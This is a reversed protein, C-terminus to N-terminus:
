DAIRMLQNQLRTYVEASSIQGQYYNQILGEEMEGLSSDLQLCLHRKLHSTLAKEFCGYKQIFKMLESWEQKFRHRELIEHLKEAIIEPSDKQYNAIEEFYSSISNLNLESALKQFSQWHGIKHKRIEYFPIKEHTLCESLSGDGTCGVIPGCLGLLNAFDSSPLPLFYILRLRKKFRNESTTFIAQEEKQKGGILSVQTLGCNALWELNFRTTHDRSLVPLVIDIHHLNDKRHLLCILYIFILQQQPIKSLYGVYLATHKFYDQFDDSTPPFRKWLQNCIRDDKWPFLKKQSTQNLFLGEEFPHLGMSFWNKQLYNGIGQFNGAEAFYFSKSALHPNDFTNLALAIHVIALSQKMEEYIIKAKEKLKQCQIFPLIQEELDKILIQLSEVHYGEKIQIRNYIENISGLENRLNDLKEEFSLKEQGELIPELIQYDFIERFGHLHNPTLLYDNLDFPPLSCQHTYVVTVDLFPLGEKLVRASKLLSFFDGLGDSHICSLLFLSGKKKPNSLLYLSHFLRRFAFHLLNLETRVIIEKEENSKRIYEWYNRLEQLFFPNLHESFFPDNFIYM